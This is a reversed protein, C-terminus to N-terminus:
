AFTRDKLPPLFHGDYIDDITPANPLDFGTKILDLAKKTRDLDITGLGNQKVNATLIHKDYIWSLRQLEVGADLLKERKVVEDVAEQRHAAGYIWADATAAAVRRALEPNQTLVDPHAILSNGFMGYGMDSFYYVVIDDLKAGNGILNFITTYDFCVVAEVRGALLMADRLKVDVITMDLSKIDIHNLEMLVPFLKAGADASGSGLKAKKLDDLSRVPKQKLSVICAPFRDFLPMIIKPTASPNHGAFAVLTSADALGFQYNGAAVRRVSEDSGSTGEPTLDLGHKQFINSLFMPANGGYIRFELSMKLSDAAFALGTSSALAAAAAGGLVQRRSISDLGAM